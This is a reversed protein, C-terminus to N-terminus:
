LVDLVEMLAKLMPTQRAVNNSGPYTEQWATFLEGLEESRDSEDLVTALLTAVDKFKPKILAEFKAELAEVQDDADDRQASIELLDICFTFKESTDYWAQANKWTAIM